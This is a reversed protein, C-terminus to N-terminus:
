IFSASPYSHDETVLIYPSEETHDPSPTFFHFHLTVLNAPLHTITFPTLHLNFSHSFLPHLASLELTPCRYALAPSLSHLWPALSNGTSCGSVTMKWCHLVQHASPLRAAM